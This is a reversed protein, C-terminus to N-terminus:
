HFPTLVSNPTSGIYYRSCGDNVHSVNGALLAPCLLRVCERNLSDIRDGSTETPEVWVVGIVSTFFHVSM